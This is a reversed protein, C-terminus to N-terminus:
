QPFNIVFFDMLIQVCNIVFSTPFINCKMIEGCFLAGIQQLWWIQKCNWKYMCLSIVSRLYLHSHVQVLFFLGFWFGPKVLFRVLGSGTLLFTCSGLVFRIRGTFFQVSGLRFHWPEREWKTWESFSITLVNVCKV